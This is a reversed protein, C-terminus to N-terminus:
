ERTGALVEREAAATARFREQWALHHRISDALGLSPQWDLWCRFDGIRWVHGAFRAADFSPFVLKAPV